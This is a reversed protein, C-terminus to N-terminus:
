GPGRSGHLGLWKKRPDGDSKTPCDTARSLRTFALALLPGAIGDAIVIPRYLAAEPLGASVFHRSAFGGALAGFAAAVSGILNHWAFVATRREDPIIQALAAQEISLFPGVERDSPSLVGITAALVLPWVYNTAAFVGGALAMLMAGLVLMWQRGVRDAATTIWFSIALDGLLTVTLLFGIQEETLGAAKLYLVLVVSLFGYAFMRMSRTAFLLLGDRTLCRLAAPIRPVPL